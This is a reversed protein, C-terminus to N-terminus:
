RQLVVSSELRYAHGPITDYQLQISPAVQLTQGFLPAIAPLCLLWLLRFATALPEKPM